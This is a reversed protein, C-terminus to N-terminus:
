ECWSAYYEVLRHKHLNNMIIVDNFDDATLEAVASPAKAVRRSTGAKENIFTVLEDVGRGGNYDEAETSGAPFFKLTPFGKVGFRAGLDKHEDANVEAVIIPDTPKFTSAVIEYDPAMAKCHGCWPAFFKVLAPKDKGIHEDFNAGTLELVASHAVSVALAALIFRM